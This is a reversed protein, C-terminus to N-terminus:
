ADRRTLVAAAALLAIVPWAIVVLLSLGPSLLGARQHLSVVQYAAFPLTFRGLRTSWPGPLLMCLVALLYVVTLAAAIAGATHRVIAGAAVGVVACAALALGAALVAGGAGPHSLSLGGHRGTAIAQTLLFCTLALLEGVVLAAAGTVLAKAALVAGRRPVATFTTRILGSAYESTFVLVSLVTVPLVTYEAYGLFSATLPDLPAPRPGPASAVSMAVVVTIGLTVIVAAILTWRNSRVSQLKTWEFAVADRARALRSSAPFRERTPGAQLTTTM